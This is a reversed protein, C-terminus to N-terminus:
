QILVVVYPAPIKAQGHPLQYTESGLHWQQGVATFMMGDLWVTSGKEPACSLNPLSAIVKQKALATTEFIVHM